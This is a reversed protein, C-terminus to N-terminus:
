SDAIDATHPIRNSLNGRHQLQWVINERNEPEDYPMWPDFILQFWPNGPRFKDHPDNCDHNSIHHCVILLRRFDIISIARAALLLSSPSFTCHVTKMPLLPQAHFSEQILLAESFQLIVRKSGFWSLRPSLQNKKTFFASLVVLFSQQSQRFATRHSKNSFPYLFILNSTPVTTLAFFVFEYTFNASLLHFPPM